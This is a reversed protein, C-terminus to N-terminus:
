MPPHSPFGCVFIIGDIVTDMTYCVNEYVYNAAHPMVIVVHVCKRHSLIGREKMRM